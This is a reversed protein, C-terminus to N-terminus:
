ELGDSEITDGMELCSSSFRMRLVVLSYTMHTMTPKTPQNSHQYTRQNTPAASAASRQEIRCPRVVCLVPPPLPVIASLSPTPDLLVAIRAFTIAALFWSCNSITSLSFAETIVGDLLARGLTTGDGSLFNAPRPLRM